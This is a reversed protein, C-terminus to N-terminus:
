EHDDRARHRSAERRTVVRLRHDDPRHFRTLQYPPSGDLPQVWLNAGTPGATYAIGRGDPMSRALGGPPHTYTKRSTCGPLGCVVFLSRNQADSSVFVL